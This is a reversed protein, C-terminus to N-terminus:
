RVTVDHVMLVLAALYFVEAVDSFYFAISNLKHPPPALQRAAGGGTRHKESDSMRGDPRMNRAKQPIRGRLAEWPSFAVIRFSPDRGGSASAETASALVLTSPPSHSLGIM